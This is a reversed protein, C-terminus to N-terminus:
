AAWAMLVRTGALLLLCIGVIRLMRRTKPPNESTAVPLLSQGFILIVGLLGPILADFYNM